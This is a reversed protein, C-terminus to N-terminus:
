DKSYKKQLDVYAKVIKAAINKNIGGKDTTMSPVVVSFAVEPNKSPYYGAFTLNYSM